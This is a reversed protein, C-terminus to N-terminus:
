GEKEPISQINVIVDLQYPNKILSSFILSFRRTM